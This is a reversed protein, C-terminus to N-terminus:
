GHCWLAILWALAERVANFVKVFSLPGHARASGAVAGGVTWNREPAALFQAQQSWPMESVWKWNGMYNCIWDEAPGAHM